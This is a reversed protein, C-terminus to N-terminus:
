ASRTAGPRWRTRQVMAQTIPQQVAAVQQASYWVDVARGLWFMRLKIRNAEVKVCSGVHNAFVGEAIRIRQGPVFRPTENCEPPPNVFGDRERAQLLAIAEDLSSSRAPVSGTMLISTVDDIDRLFFHRQPSRVFLYCPYLARIVYGRRPTRRNHVAKRYRPSYAAFGLAALRRIVATECNPRTRAVLWDPM